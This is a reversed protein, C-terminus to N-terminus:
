SQMESTTEIESPKVRLLPFPTGELSTLDREREGLAFVLRQKCFMQREPKHLRLSHIRERLRRQREVSRIEFRAQKPM